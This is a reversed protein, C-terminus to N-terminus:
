FVAFVISSRKLILAIRWKLLLLLLLVLLILLILLVLDQPPEDGFIEVLTVYIQVIPFPFM